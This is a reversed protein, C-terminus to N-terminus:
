VAMKHHLVPAGVALAEAADIIPTPKSTMVGSLGDITGTPAL